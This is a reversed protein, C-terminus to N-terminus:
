KRPSEVLLRNELVQGYVDIRSFYLEAGKNYSIWIEENLVAETKKPIAIIKTSKDVAFLRNVFTPHELNDTLILMPMTDAVVNAIIYPLGALGAKLNGPTVMDAHDFISDPTFELCRLDVEIHKVAKPNDTIQVEAILKYMGPKRLQVLTNHLFNASNNPSLDEFSLPRSSRQDNPESSPIEKGSNDFIKVAFAMPNDVCKSSIIRLGKDGPAQVTIRLIVSEAVFVTEKEQVTVVAEGSAALVNNFHLMGICSFYFMLELARRM